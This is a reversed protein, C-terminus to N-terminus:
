FFRTVHGSNSVAISSITQFSVLNSILGRLLETCNDPGPIIAIEIFIFSKRSQNGGSGRLVGIM